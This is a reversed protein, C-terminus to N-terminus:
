ESAVAPKVITIDTPFYNPKTALPSESALYDNEVLSERNELTELIICSQRFDSKWMFFNYEFFVLPLSVQRM